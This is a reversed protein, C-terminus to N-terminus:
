FMPVAGKVVFSCRQFFLLLIGKEIMNRKQLSVFPYKKEITRMVEVIEVFFTESTEDSCKMPFAFIVLSM